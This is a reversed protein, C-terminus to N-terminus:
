GVRKRCSARGIEGRASQRTDQSYDWLDSAPPIADHVAASFVLDFFLAALAWLLAARIPLRPRTADTVTAPAYPRPPRTLLRTPSPCFFHEGGHMRRRPAEHRDRDQPVASRDTGSLGM